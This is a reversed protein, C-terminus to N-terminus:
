LWLNLDVIVNSANSTSTQESLLMKLVNVLM